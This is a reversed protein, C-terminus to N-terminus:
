ILFVCHRINIAVLPARVARSPVPAVPSALPPPLTVAAPGLLPALAPPAAKTQSVAVDTLDELASCSAHDDDHARVAGADGLCHPCHASRGDDSAQDHGSLAAADTEHGPHAHLDFGGHSGSGEHLVVEANRVAAAADVPARGAAAVCPAIGAALYAVVFAGVVHRAAGARWRRLSGLINRRDKM